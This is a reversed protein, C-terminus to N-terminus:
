QPYLHSYVNWTMQVDSHGLQRAVEQINIANNALLSAHSHRYDHIRIHPLGVESAYKKNRNEVSSDRLPTEGGCIRYDETFVHSAARQCEKHEDLTEMLPIPM